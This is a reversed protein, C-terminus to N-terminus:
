LSGKEVLAWKPCSQIGIDIMIAMLKGGILTYPFVRDALRGRGVSGSTHPPSDAVSRDSKAGLVGLLEDGRPRPM